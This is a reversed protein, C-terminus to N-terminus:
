WGRHAQIRQVHTPSPRCFFFLQFWPIDISQLLIFSFFSRSHILNCSALPNMRRLLSNYRSRADSINISRASARQDTDSCDYETGNGAIPKRLVATVVGSCTGKASRRWTTGLFISCYISGRQYTYSYCALTQQIYWEQVHNNPTAWWLWCQLCVVQMGAKIQM